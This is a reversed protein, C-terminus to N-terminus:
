EFAKKYDVFNYKFFFLIQIQSWDGLIIKYVKIPTHIIECGGGGRRGCFIRKAAKRKWLSRRHRPRPPGNDPGQAQRLGRPHEWADQDGRGGERLIYVPHGCWNDAFVMRVGEVSFVTCYLVYVPLVRRYLVIM